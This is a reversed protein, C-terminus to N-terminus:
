LCAAIRALTRMGDPRRKMGYLAKDAVNLLADITEGDKPFVAAGVSVSARPFEGDESLRECIRRGVAEAAEKDAEPLVV